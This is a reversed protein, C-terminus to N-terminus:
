SPFAPSSKLDEIQGTFYKLCLANMMMMQYADLKGFATNNSHVRVNETTTRVYKLQDAIDKKFLDLAEDLNKFKFSNEGNMKQGEQITLFPLNDDAQMDKQLAGPQALAFQVKTWLEHESNVARYVYDRISLQGKHKRYSLQKKSLGSISETFLSKSHKLEQLLNRRERGSLTDTHLRGALGTLVLMTLLLYGKTRKFM